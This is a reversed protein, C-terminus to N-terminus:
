RRGGSAVRVSVRKGSVVSKRDTDVLTVAPLGAVLMQGVQLRDSQAIRGASPARVTTRDLNVQAQSRQVRAAEVQPNIGSSPGAALKTRAEAAAAEAQRVRERAQQLAHRSADYAAKTTFGKEM